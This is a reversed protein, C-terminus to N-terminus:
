EEEEKVIEVVMDEEKEDKLEDPLEKMCAPCLQEDCEGLAYSLHEYCFYKGCGNEGGDHMSGCVFALGRDIKENCEPHDCTTEVGYGIERGENNKGYGWGV